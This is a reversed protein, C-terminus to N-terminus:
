GAINMLTKYVLHTPLGVVNTYSGQIEEIGVIGLWDQIGYAGAKDFPQYAEIYFRIEEESLLKFKVRTKAYVTRKNESTTFCVATIVDHWDNSLQQLMQVAEQNNAPKALSTENHWVITDATILLEKEKLTPFANSKLEALYVAIATGTLEQPYKEQVPKLEIEYDIGLEEFFQKRRPSGSALIIRYPSLAVKLPNNIM